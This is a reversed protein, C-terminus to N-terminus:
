FIDSEHIIVTGIKNNRKRKLKEIVKKKGKPNVSNILDILRKQEKETKHKETTSGM